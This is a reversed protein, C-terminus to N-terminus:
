IVQIGILHGFEHAFVKATQYITSKGEQIEVIGSATGDKRCMAGRYAIGITNSIRNQSDYSFIFTPFDRAATKKIRELERSEAWVTSNVFCVDDM